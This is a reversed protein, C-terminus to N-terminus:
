YRHQFARFLLHGSQRRSRSAPSGGPQPLPQARLRPRGGAFFVMVKQRMPEQFGTTNASLVLVPHKVGYGIVRIGPWVYLTDNLRYRGPGLLVIGQGGTERVRDIAHQLATTDDGGSPAAVYVAEHKAVATPLLLGRVGAM